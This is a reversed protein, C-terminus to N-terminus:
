ANNNNNFVLTAMVHSISAQRGETSVGEIVHGRARKKVQRQACRLAFSPM